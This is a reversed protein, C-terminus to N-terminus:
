KAAPGTVLAQGKQQNRWPPHGPGQARRRLDEFEKGTAAFYIWEFAMDVQEVLDNNNELVLPYIRDASGRWDYYKKKNRQNNNNNNNVGFWDVIGHDAHLIKEMIDKTAKKKKECLMKALVDASGNLRYFVLDSVGPRVYSPLCHTVEKTTKNWLHQEAPIRTEV